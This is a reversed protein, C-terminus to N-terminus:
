RGRPLPHLLTVVAVCVVLATGFSPHGLAVYVTGCGVPMLPVMRQGIQGNM